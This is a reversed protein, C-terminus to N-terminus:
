QWSKDDKEDDTDYDDDIFVAKGEALDRMDMNKSGQPLRNRFKDLLSQPYTIIEMNNRMDVWYLKSLREPRTMLHDLFEVCSNDLRNGRLGLCTLNEM